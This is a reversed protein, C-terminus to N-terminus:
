LQTKRTWALTRCGHPFPITGSRSTPSSALGGSPFATDCWRETRLQGGVSRDSPQQQGAGSCSCDITQRDWSARSGRGPGGSSRTASSGSRRVVAPTATTRFTTSPHFSLSPVCSRSTCCGVWVHTCAPYQASVSWPTISVRHHPACCRQPVLRNGVLIRRDTIIFIIYLLLAVNSAVATRRLSNKYLGIANRVIVPFVLVTPPM